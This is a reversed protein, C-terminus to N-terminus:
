DDDGGQSEAGDEGQANESEDDGSAGDTGQRVKSFIAGYLRWENEEVAWRTRLTGRPLAFDVDARYTSERTTNPAGLAVGGTTWGERTLIAVAQNWRSGQMREALLAEAAVLDGRGLAARFLEIRPERAGVEEVQTGGSAAGFTRFIMWGVLGVGAIAGIAAFKRMRGIRAEKARQAEVRARAESRGAITTHRGSLSAHDFQDEHERLIRSARAVIPVAAWLALAILAKLIPLGGLTFTLVVELTLFATYGLTWGFPYRYLTLAGATAMATMGFTVAILLARYEALEGLNQSLLFFLASVGNVLASFWLLFRVLRLPRRARILAAHALKREENDLRVGAGDSSAARRRIPARASASGRGRSQAAFAAGCEECFRVVTQHLAGYAPCALDM